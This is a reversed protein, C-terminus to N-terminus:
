RENAPPFRLTGNESNGSKRSSALLQRAASVTGPTPTSPVVIELEYQPETYLKWASHPVTFCSFATKHYRGRSNEGLVFVINEKGSFYAEALKLAQEEEIQEVVERFLLKLMQKSGSIHKKAM